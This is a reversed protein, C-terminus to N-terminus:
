TLSFFQKAGPIHRIIFKDLLLFIILSIGVLPYFIGLAITIITIGRPIIWNDPLKPAGLKGSPRRQWWMIAATASMWVMGLAAFLMAILNPIGFLEGQHLRIGSTIGKALLPYDDWTAQSVVEGSYQDIYVFKTEDVDLARYTFGYTGEPGKPLVVTYGTPMEHSEAISIAESLTLPAQGDIPTSKIPMFFGAALPTTQGTAEQVRDLGGGWMQSWPLGTSILLLIFGSAYMAVVAHMDRWFIRKGENLRPIFTGKLRFTPRPWWLYIGTVLLVIAWSATLEVVYSGADGLLLEGHLKRVKRMFMDDRVIDGTIDGTYPNAYVLVTDGAENKMTVATADDAEMGFTIDSAKWDPRAAKARSLQDDVSLPTTEATVTWMDRYLMPEIYPKFLYLSGTLGLLISIPIVFLGAYFHWRWIATYLKKSKKPKMIVEDNNSPTQTGM